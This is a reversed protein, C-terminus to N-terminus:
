VTILPVDVGSAEVLKGLDDPDSTMVAAGHQIASVVVAADVIDTTGSAKLLGGVSKAAEESFPLHECQGCLTRLAHQREDDRWVQALVVSPLLVRSGDKLMRRSASVLDSRPDRDLRVLPGADILLRVIPKKSRAMM